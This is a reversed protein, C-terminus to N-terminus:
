KGGALRNYSEIGREFLPSYMIRQWCVNRLNVIAKAM